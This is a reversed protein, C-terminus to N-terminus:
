TSTSVLIAAASDIMAKAEDWSRVKVVAEKRGGPSCVSVGPEKCRGMCKAARAEVGAEAMVMEAGQRVCAKGMCVEAVVGDNTEMGKEQLEERERGVRVELEVLTEREKMLWADVQRKTPMEVGDVVGMERLVRCAKEVKEIRKRVEKAVKYAM